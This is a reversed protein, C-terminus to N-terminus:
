NLLQLQDGVAVSGATDIVAYVGLFPGYDFNEMLLAPIDLCGQEPNNPDIGVGECRVTKAIVTFTLVGNDNNNTMEM